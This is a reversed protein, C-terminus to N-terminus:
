CTESTCSRSWRLPFTQRLSTVHKAPSLPMGRPPAPLLRGHCVHLAGDVQLHHEQLVSITESVLKAFSRECDNLLRHVQWGSSVEGHLNDIVVQCGFFKELLEQWALHVDNSTEFMGVYDVDFLNQENTRFVRSNAPAYFEPDHIAFVVPM